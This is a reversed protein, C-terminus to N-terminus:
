TRERKFLPGYSNPNGDPDFLDFRAIETTNDSKYYVWQNNASDIEWGGGEVDVLFDVDKFHTDMQIIGFQPINTMDIGPSQTVYVHYTDEEAPNTIADTDFDYHYSGPITAETETMATQRSTWGSGKFTDDSFDYWYGDSKRLFSILIDSKGPLAANYQDVALINIRETYGHKTRMPPIMTPRYFQAFWLDSAIDYVPKRFWEVEMRGIQPVNKVDTGPSQEVLVHFVDYNTIIPMSNTDFDYHYMGPANTSDTESMAVQRTTWGSAKFTDDNFDYWYGNTPNVLSLLIDTKGTLMEGNANVAKVIL